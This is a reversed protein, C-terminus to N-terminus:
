ARIRRFVMRSLYFFALGVSGVTLRPHTAYSLGAAILLFALLVGDRVASRRVMVV